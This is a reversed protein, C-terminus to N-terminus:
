SCDGQSSHPRGWTISGAVRGQLVRPRRSPEAARVLGHWARAGRRPGKVPGKVHWGDRFSASCPGIARGVGVRVTMCYVQGYAIMM